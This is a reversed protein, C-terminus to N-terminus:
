KLVRNQRLLLLLAVKQTVPRVKSCPWAPGPWALHPEKLYNVEASPWFCCCCCCVVSASRGNTFDRSEPEKIWKVQQNQAALLGALPLCVSLCSLSRPLFSFCLFRPPCNIPSQLPPPSYIVFLSLPYFPVSDLISSYSPCTPCAQTKHLGQFPFIIIRGQM